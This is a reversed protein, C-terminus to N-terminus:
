DEVCKGEHQGDFELASVGQAIEGSMESLSALDASRKGANGKEAGADGDRKKDRDDEAHGGCEDEEVFGSATRVCAEVARFYCRGPSLMPSYNSLSLEESVKM